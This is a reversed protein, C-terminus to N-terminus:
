TVQERSPTEWRIIEQGKLLKIVAVLAAAYTMTFYFPITFIKMRGIRRNEFLMGAIACLYFVLQALTFLRYFLGYNWLFPSIFILM